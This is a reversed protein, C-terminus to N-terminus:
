AILALSEGTYVELPTRGGLVKRPMTNILLEAERIEAATLGGLAMKKPWTRRIIGNTNENTGRQYSAYPKAFFVDASVAKAVKEHAAFEGGNDLTITCVSSVRGLLKIMSDAVTEAQKNDVKDILTFRSKRDVLTVLHADQGFVTDGEWDGLRSRLGVVEPRETIDVRNPILSRGAKRKGGKCRRKGFRPLKKYLTGGSAKNDAIRAYITTHSLTIEPIEIKMRCSINEPSWGLLLGNEIIPMQREDVKSYKRASVRRHIAMSHATEACYGNGDTNRQLERSLTGASTGIREAIEKQTLGTGLLAEIQYRQGQTLQKYLKTQTNM